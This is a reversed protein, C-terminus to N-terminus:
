SLNSTTTARKSFSSRIEKLPQINIISYFSISALISYFSINFNAATIVFFIQFKVNLYRQTTFGAFIM